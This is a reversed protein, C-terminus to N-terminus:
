LPFTRYKMSQGPSDAPVIEIERIVRVTYDDIWDGDIVRFEVGDPPIECEWRATFPPPSTM